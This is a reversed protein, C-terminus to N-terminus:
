GCGPRTCGWCPAPSSCCCARYRSSLLLYENRELLGYHDKKHHDSHLHWLFGHMVYKHTAWAVGEMLFFTAAVIAIIAWTGM